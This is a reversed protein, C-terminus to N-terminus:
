TRAHIYTWTWNLFFVAIEFKFHLVRGRSKMTSCQRSLKFASAEAHGQTSATPSKEWIAPHIRALIPEKQCTSGCSAM